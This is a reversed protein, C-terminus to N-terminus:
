WRPCSACEACRLEPKRIGKRAGIGSAIRPRCSSPPRTNSRHWTRRRRKTAIPASADEAERKAASPLEAGRVPRRRRLATFTPKPHQLISPLSLRSVLRPSDASPRNDWRDRKRSVVVFSGRVVSTDDILRKVRSEQGVAVRSDTDTEGSVHDSSQFEDAMLESLERRVARYPGDRRQAVQASGTPGSRPQTGREAAPGRRAAAKRHGVPYPRTVM